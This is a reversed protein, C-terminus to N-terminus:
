RGGTMFQQMMQMVAQINQMMCSLCGPINMDGMAQMMCDMLSQESGGSSTQSQLMRAPASPMREGLMEGLTSFMSRAQITVGDALDQATLRRGTSVREPSSMGMRVHWQKFSNTVPTNDFNLAIGHGSRAPFLEEGLKQIDGLHPQLKESLRRKLAAEDGSTQSTEKVADAVVNSLDVMRRDGFHRLVGFVSDKQAASLQILDLKKHDEPHQERISGSINMLKRAVAAHVEDRTTAKALSSGGVAMVNDTALDALEPSELLGRVTLPPQARLSQSQHPMVSIAKVTFACAGVFCLLGAVAAVTARRRSGQSAEAAPVLEEEEASSSSADEAPPRMFTDSNRAAM